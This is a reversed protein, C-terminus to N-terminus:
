PIRGDRHDEIIWAIAMGAARVVYTVEADPVDSEAYRGHGAGPAQSRYGQLQGLTKSLLKTWSLQGRFLLTVNAGFDKGGNSAVKVVAELAGVAESIAKEQEVPREDLFDLARQYQKLVASFPGSLLAVTEHEMHLVNLVTAVGDTRLIRDERVELEDGARALGDNLLATEDEDLGVAQIVGQADELDLLNVWNKLEFRRESPGWGDSSKGLVRRVAEHPDFEGDSNRARDDLVSSLASRLAEPARTM